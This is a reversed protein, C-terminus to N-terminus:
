RPSLVWAAEVEDLRTRLVEDDTAVAVDDNGGRIRQLSVLACWTSDAPRPPKSALVTRAWQLTRHNVYDLVFHHEAKHERWWTLLAADDGGVAFAAGFDEGSFRQVALAANSSQTLSPGRSHMVFLPMAQGLRLIAALGLIARVQQRATIQQGGEQAGFAVHPPVALISFLAPVAPPAAKVLEAELADYKAATAVDDAMRDENWDRCFRQAVETAADLEVLAAACGPEDTFARKLLCSAVAEPVERGIEHLALWWRLDRREATRVHAALELARVLRLARVRVAREGADARAVARIADDLSAPGLLESGLEGDMFPDGRSLAAAVRESDTPVVDQACTCGTVLTAFLVQRLMVPHHEHVLEGALGTAAVAERSRRPRVM